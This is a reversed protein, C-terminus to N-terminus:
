AMVPIMRRAVRLVPMKRGQSRDSESRSNLFQDGECPRCSSPFVLRRSITGGRAFRISARRADDRRRTMRLHPSEAADLISEIWDARSKYTEPYFSTPTIAYFIRVKSVALRSEGSVLGLAKSLRALIGSSVHKDHSHRELFGDGCLQMSRM